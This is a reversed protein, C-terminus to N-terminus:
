QILQVFYDSYKKAFQECFEVEHYINNNKNKNILAIYDKKLIKEIKFAYKKNNKDVILYVTGMFGQGLKKLVRYNQFVNVKNM